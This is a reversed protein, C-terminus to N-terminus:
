ASRINIVNDKKPAPDKQEVEQTRGYTLLLSPINALVLGITVGGMFACLLMIIIDVEM